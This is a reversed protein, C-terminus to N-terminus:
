MNDPLDKKANSSMSILAIIDEPVPLLEIENEDFFKIHRGPDPDANDMLVKYIKNLYEKDKTIVVWIAPSCFITRAYHDVYLPPLLKVFLDSRLTEIAKVVNSVKKIKNEISNRDKSM